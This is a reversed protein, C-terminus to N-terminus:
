EGTPRGLLEQLREPYNTTIAKLGLALMHHMDAPDDVTWCVLALDAATAAAVLEPTIGGHNPALISAGLDQARRILDASESASLPSIGVILEIPLQPDLERVRRLCGEDFSSIFSKPHRSERIAAVAQAEVGPAKLELSLPVRDGTLAIVESLTPVREEAYEPAFWSGADLSRIQAFTMEAAAGSGNTTRDVTADHLVIAVGDATPRADLEIYDAGIEMAHRFAVLTNEPRTGSAGRHAINTIHDFV